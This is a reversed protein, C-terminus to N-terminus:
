SRVNHVILFTFVLKIQLLRAYISLAKAIGPLIRTIIIKRLRCPPPPQEIFRSTVPATRPSDAIERPCLVSVQRPEGGSNTLVDIVDDITSMEGAGFQQALYSLDFVFTSAKRYESSKRDQTCLFCPTLELVGLYLQDRNVLM